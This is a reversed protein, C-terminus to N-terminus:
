GEPHLARGSPILGVGSTVCAILAVTSRVGSALSAPSSLTTRNSGHPLPWKAEEGVLLVEGAFEHIQLVALLVCVPSYCLHRALSEWPDGVKTSM